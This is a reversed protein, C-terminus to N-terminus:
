QTPRTLHRAGARPIRHIAVGTVAARCGPPRMRQGLCRGFASSQRGHQPPIKTGNWPLGECRGESTRANCFAIRTVQQRGGAFAQLRRRHAFARRM